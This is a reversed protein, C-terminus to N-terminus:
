GQNKCVVRVLMGGSGLQAVWVGIQNNGTDGPPLVLELGYCLSPFM